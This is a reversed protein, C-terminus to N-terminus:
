ISEENPMGDYIEGDLLRGNECGRSIKDCGSVLNWTSEIWKIKSKSL